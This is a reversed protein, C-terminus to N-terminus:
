NMNGQDSSVNLTAEYKNTTQIYKWPIVEELAKKM